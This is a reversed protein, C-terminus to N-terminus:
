TIKAADHRGRQMSNQLWGAAGSVTSFSGFVLITENKEVSSVAEQMADRVADKACDFWLQPDQEAFGPQPSDIKQETKPYFASGACTGSAADLLSAKVSSSGVDIGLLYKM